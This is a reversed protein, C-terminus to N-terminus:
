PYTHIKSQEEEEEESSSYKSEDSDNLPECNLCTWIGYRNFDHEAKEQCFICFKKM